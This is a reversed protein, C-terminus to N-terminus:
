LAVAPAPPGDGVPQGLSESALDTTVQAPPIQAPEAGAPALGSWTVHLSIWLRLGLELSVQAWDQLLHRGGERPRGNLQPRDVFVADPKLRDQPLDPCQGCKGALAGDGRDLMAIIPAVDDAEHM